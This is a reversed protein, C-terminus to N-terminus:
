VSLVQYRASFSVNNDVAGTVRVRVNTGSVDFVCDWGAQDEASHLVSTAGVQTVTGAVNKFTAALVYGASDGAAGAVGGTRRATVAAQVVYSTNSAIAITALTTVTADTTNVTAVAIPQYTNSLDPIDAAVLSNRGLFIRQDAFRSSGDILTQGNAIGVAGVPIVGSPLVVDALDLESLVAPDGFVDAGSVAHLAEDAPDFYVVVWASYGSASGGEGSLDFDYLTPPDASTASDDWYGGAHWFGRVHVLLAGAQSAEVRGPVFGNGPISRPVTEDGGPPVLAWRAADGLSAVAQEYDLTKVEDAGDFGPGVVVGANYRSASGWVATQERSEDGGRVWVKGPPAGMLTVTTADIRRGTLMRKWGLYMTAQIRAEVKQRIEDDPM